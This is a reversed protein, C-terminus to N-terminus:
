CRLLVQAYGHKKKDKFVLMGNYVFIDLDEANKGGKTVLINRMVDTETELSLGGLTCLAQIKPNDCDVTCWINYNNQVLNAFINIWDHGGRASAVYVREGDVLCCAIIHGNQREFVVSNIKDPFEKEAKYKAGFASQILQVIEARDINSLEEVRLSFYQDGSVSLKLKKMEVGDFIDDCDVVQDFFDLARESNLNGCISALKYKMEPYKRFYRIVEPICSVIVRKTESPVIIEPIRSIQKLANIIILPDTRAHEVDCFLLRKEKIERIIEPNEVKNTKINFVCCSFNVDGEKLLTSVQGDTMVLFHVDVGNVVAGVVGAFTSIYYEHESTQYGEIRKYGNAELVGIVEDLSLNVEFDFDNIKKGWILDRVAGGGLYIEASGFMQGVEHVQPIRQIDKVLSYEDIAALISESFHLYRSIGYQDLAQLINKRIPEDLVLIQWIEDDLNVAEILLPAQKIIAALTYNEITFGLEAAFRFARLIRSPDLAIKVEPEDMKIEKELLSLLGDFYDTVIGGNSLILTSINMDTLALREKIDKTTTFDFYRQGIKLRLTNFKDWRGTVLSPFDNQIQDLDFDGIFDYDSMSTETELLLNRVAGGYLNVETKRRTIVSAIEFINRTKSLIEERFGDGLEFENESLKRWKEELFLRESM